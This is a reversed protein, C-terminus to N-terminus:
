VKEGKLFETNIEFYKVMELNVTVMKDGKHIHLHKFKADYVISSVQKIEAHDVMFSLQNDTTDFEIELRM